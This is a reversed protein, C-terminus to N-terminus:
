KKPKMRHGFLSGIKKNLQEFYVMQNPKCLKKIDQFHNYHVKEIAAQQVLVEQLLVSDIQQDLDSYLKNKAQVLDKEAKGIDTQHKQILKDYDAIQQKDFHLIEIIENRPGEPRPHPPRMFYNAILLINGLLLVVIFSNKITSKKM